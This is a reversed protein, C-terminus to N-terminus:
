LPSRDRHYILGEKFFHVIHGFLPDKEAMGCQNEKCYVFYKQTLDGQRAFFRESNHLNGNIM